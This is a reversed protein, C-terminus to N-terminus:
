VHEDAVVTGRRGGVAQLNDDLEGASEVEGGDDVDQVASQM